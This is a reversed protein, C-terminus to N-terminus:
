GACLNSLCSLDLLWLGGSFAVGCSLEGPWSDVVVCFPISCRDGVRREGAGGIVVIGHHFLIVTHRIGHVSKKLWERLTRM